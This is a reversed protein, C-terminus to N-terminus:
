GGSRFVLAVDGWAEPPDEPARGEAMSRRVRDLDVMLELLNRPEIRPLRLTVATRDAGVIGIQQGNLVVSVLGPVSELVLIPSGEQTTSEAPPCGFRRTLKLRRGPLAAISAPLTLRTTVAPDAGEM